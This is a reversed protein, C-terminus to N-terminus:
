CRQNDIREFELFHLQKYFNIYIVSNEASILKVLESLIRNLTQSNKKNAKLAVFNAGGIDLSQLPKMLRIAALVKQADQELANDRLSLFAVPCTPLYQDLVDFCAKDSCVGDLNLRINTLQTNNSLGQLIGKLLDSNLITGSLNLEELNVMCSFLEKVQSASEKMKKSSLCGSLNLKELQLGGLKLASWLRDVLIGTVSLDLCRLSGCVSVFNILENAEDKLSCRSLVLRKLELRQGAINTDITLGTNLGSALHHISKESLGCDAFSISKLQSLKPLTNALHSIDLFIFIILTIFNNVKKIM